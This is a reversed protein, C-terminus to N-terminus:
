HSERLPLLLLKSVCHLSKCMLSVRQDGEQDKTASVRLWQCEKLLCSHLVTPTSKKRVM